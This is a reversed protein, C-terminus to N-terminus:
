LKLKKLETLIRDRGTQELATFISLLWTRHPALAPDTQIFHKTGPFNWDLKFDPPQNEVLRVLNELQASAKGSDALGTWNGIEFVALLILNQDAASGKLLPKIEAILRNGESYLGATFYNEVLSLRTEVPPNNEPNVLYLNMELAENFQFVRNHLLVVLKAAADGPNVKYVNRYHEIAATWNERSEYLEALNNQTIAWDYPLYQFTRIELANKYAQVAQDLLAAGEAGGTHIGQDYLATGLNNQTMAWYQPFQEKTFVELARRFAQVAQVLLAAGEAGGTRVGQNRLVVGLNNQAGAWYQPFQEKTLVELSQGYAHVAQRLLAVGEAGGTRIGQERLANGLNNQIRAWDQPADQRTYRQLVRRYASVAATLLASCEEGTVRAGLEAQTNGLYVQIEYWQRPYQEWTAIAEAKHYAELAERFRYDAFYSNGADRWNEFTALDTQVLNEKLVKRREEGQRAAMTFNEAAKAFHKLYFARLGLTRYDESNEVETAWQDFQDKVQEPTFGYREAWEKLYFSFDVPASGSGPKKMKALEGALGAIHKEIRAHTWLKKSGLPVLEVRATHVDQYKLNPLNWVGDLPHNIVWGERAVSIIVQEGELFDRSLAIQFNGQDDTIDSPGGSVAITTEPVPQGADTVVVGKLLLDAGRVPIFATLVTFIVIVLLIQKM